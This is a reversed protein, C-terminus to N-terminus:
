RPSHSGCFDSLHFECVVDSLHRDHGVAEGVEVTRKSINVGLVWAEKGIYPGGIVTVWDGEEIHKCLDYWPVNFTGEHQTEVEVGDGALRVVYGEKDSSHQIVREGIEFIWDIPKPFKAELIQPHGSHRFMFLTHSSMLVGSTKVSRSSFPKRALGHQYVTNLFRFSNPKNKIPVPPRIQDVGSFMDLATIPDFLAAPRLQLSGKRKRGADLTWPPHPLRPILLVVVGYSDEKIVYGVDGKYRGTKITVWRHLKPAWDQHDWTTLLKEWNGFPIEDYVIGARSLHVGPTLQLIRVLDGTM